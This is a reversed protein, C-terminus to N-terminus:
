GGGGKRAGEEVNGFAFDGRGGVDGDGSGECVGAGGIVEGGPDACLV